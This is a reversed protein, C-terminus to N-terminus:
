KEIFFIDKDKYAPSSVALVKMPKVPNTNELAHIAKAPVYVAEGQKIKEISDNVRAKGHGSLIYYIEESNKHFHPTAKLKPRLTGTAFSMNKIKLGANRFLEFIPAGDKAIFPKGKERGIFSKTM